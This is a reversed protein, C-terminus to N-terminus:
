LGLGGITKQACALLQSVRSESLGVMAAIERMLFGDARLQVIKATRDSFMSIIDSIEVERRDLDSHPDEALDIRANGDSMGKEIAAEISHKAIPNDGRRNGAPAIARLYDLISYRAKKKVWYELRVNKRDDYTELGRVAGEWAAGLLDGADVHIGTKQTIRRAEAASAEQCIKVMAEERLHEHGM